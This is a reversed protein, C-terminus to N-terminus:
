CSAAVEPPVRSRTGRPPAGIIKRSPDDGFTSVRCGSEKPIEPARHAAGYRQSPPRISGPGAEAPRAWFTWKSM